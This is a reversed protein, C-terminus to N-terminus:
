IQLLTAIALQMMHANTFARPCVIPGAGTIPDPAMQSYICEAAARNGDTTTLLEDFYDKKDNKVCTDLSKLKESNLVAHEQPLVLLPKEHVFGTFMPRKEADCIHDNKYKYYMFKLVAHEQPLVLLPKEHVFGTFMPRKEADCIHDNKYKYYMFKLALEFQEANLKTLILHTLGRESAQQIKMVTLNRQQIKNHLAEQAMLAQQQSKSLKAEKASKPSHVSQSMELLSNEEASTLPYIIPLQCINHSLVEENVIVEVDGDALVAIVNPYRDKSVPVFAMRTTSAGDKGNASRPVDVLKSYVKDITGTPPAPLVTALVGDPDERLECLVSSLLNSTLLANRDVYFLEGDRTEIIIYHHRVFIPACIHEETQLRSKARKSSM